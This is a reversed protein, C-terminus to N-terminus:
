NLTLRRSMRYDLSLTFSLNADSEDADSIKSTVTTYLGAASASMSLRPTFSRLYTLASRYALTESDENPPPEFGYRASWQLASTPGFRYSVSGEGYFSSSKSGSEDFSRLAEGLRLTANLRSTLRFEGGILIYDTTADVNPADPFAIFSRRYEALLTYRPNWLYRGEVGFTTEYNDGNQASTGVVDLPNSSKETYIVANQSASATVTLRP